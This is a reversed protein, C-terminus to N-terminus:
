NLPNTKIQLESVSHVVIVDIAGCFILNEAVEVAEEESIPQSL